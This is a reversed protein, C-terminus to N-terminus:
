AKQPNAKLWEIIDMSEYLPKGDIVLCPVQSKGGIEMLAKRDDESKRIDRFEVDTRGQAEIENMVRRCYPCTDFMYLKLEM